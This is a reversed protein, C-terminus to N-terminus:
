KRKFDYCLVAGLGFQWLAAYDTVPYYGGWGYWYDTGVASITHQLYAQLKLAVSSSTKIKVGLKADWAFKTGSHENVNLINLGLGLGGYPLVKGGPNSGLYKNWGLLIYNLSGTDAGKNIQAGSVYLPFSTDNRLYKLEVSQDYFTFFEFGGGYQFGAQPKAYSADFHVTAGFNYGADLNLSLTGPEQARLIGACFLITAILFYKRM